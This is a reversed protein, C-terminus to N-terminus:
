ARLDAWSRCGTRELTPGHARAASLTDMPLGDPVRAPAALGQVKLRLLALAILSTAGQAWQVPALPQNPEFIRRLLPKRGGFLRESASVELLVAEDVQAVRPTFQLARWGWATCEDERSPLLAIWHM